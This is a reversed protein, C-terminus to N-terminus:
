LAQQETSSPHPDWSCRWMRQPTPPPFWWTDLFPDKSQLHPSLLHPCLTFSPFSPSAQKSFYDNLSSASGGAGKAKRFLGFGM